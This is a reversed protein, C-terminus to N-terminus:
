NSIYLITGDLITNYRNLPCSTAGDDFPYGYSQPNFTTHCTPCELLGAWEKSMEVRSNNDCPCTRDFAVYDSLSNCIVVIGRYGGTIYVYGGPHTLATYNANRLDITCRADGISTNCKNDNKCACCLALSFLLFIIRKMCFFTIGKPLM